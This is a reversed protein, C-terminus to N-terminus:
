GEFLQTPIQIKASPKHVAHIKNSFKFLFSLIIFYIANKSFLVSIICYTKFICDIEKNGLHIFNIELTIKERTNAYGFMPWKFSLQLFASVPTMTHSFNQHHKEPHSIIWFESTSVSRKLVVLQAKVPNWLYTMSNQVKWTSL